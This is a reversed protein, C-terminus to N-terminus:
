IQDHGRARGRMTVLMRRHSRAAVRRPIYKEAFREDSAVSALQRKWERWREMSWMQRSQCVTETETETEKVNSTSMAANTRGCLGLQCAGFVHNGIKSPRYSTEILDLYERSTPPIHDLAGLFDCEVLCAGALRAM